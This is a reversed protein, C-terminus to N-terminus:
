SLASALYFLFTTDLPFVFVRSPLECACTYVLALDLCLTVESSILRANVLAQQSAVKVLWGGFCECTQSGAWLSLSPPQRTKSSKWPRTGPSDRDGGERAYYNALKHAHTRPDVGDLGRWIGRVQGSVCM